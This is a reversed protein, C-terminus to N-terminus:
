AATVKCLANPEDIVSKVRTEALLVLINKVFFDSHSDTLFVDSVGRDFLTVGAQFDGVFATGATVAPYPVPTLGWYERTRTAPTGGAATSAAVDLAALDAPNLLVANPNYGAAEVTGVASRIGASLNGGGSAVPATIATILTALDTDIKKLLGRRLKGELIGRVYSADELAQRTIQYWHALTDLTATAPTFTAGAEPKAAGEAVVAATPDPGIVVWSVVGASVRVTNVLNVLTPRYQQEIPTWQFPALALNATTILAREELFGDIPFRGSTGYGPFARFQESDVFAQGPSTTELRSKGPGRQEPADSKTADIRRQLDAFARASESQTQHEGLMADIEVCREQLRTIESREADTLDREEAASRDRLGTMVGTLSTREDLLRDLYVTM